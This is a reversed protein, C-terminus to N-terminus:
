DKLDCPKRFGEAMSFTLVLPVKKRSNHYGKDSAKKNGLKSTWRLTAHQQHYKQWLERQESSWLYYRKKDTNFGVRLTYFTHGSQAIYNEALQIFHKM